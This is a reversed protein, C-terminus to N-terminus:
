AKVGANNADWESALADRLKDAADRCQEVTEGYAMEHRAYMDPDPEWLCTVQAQWEGDPPDMQYPVSVHFQEGFTPLLSYMSTGSIRRYNNFISWATAVVTHLQRKHQAVKEIGEVRMDPNIMANPNVSANATLEEITMYLVNAAGRIYSALSEDHDFPLYLVAQGVMAPFEDGARLLMHEEEPVFPDSKGGDEEVSWVIWTGDLAMSPLMRHCINDLTWFDFPEIPSGATEFDYLKGM